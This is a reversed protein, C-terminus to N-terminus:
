MSKPLKVKDSYSEAVEDLIPAIMKCPGCWEAWYDVLVPQESKIVESEFSEDTVHLLNASM